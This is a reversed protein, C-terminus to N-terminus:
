VEEPTLSPFGRDPGTDPRLRNGRWVVDDTWYSAVIQAVSLLDRVPLLWQVVPQVPRASISKLCRGLALAVLTRAGWAIAVLAAAWGAGDTSAFVLLSWVIPYQLMAGVMAVPELASMTRAWRLEHRWLGALHTEQVTTVPLTPALRVALGLGRVMRALLYDDALRDALERLGGLQELTRRHLAMTTGLCDQRGLAAGLLSGPLFSYTLHTAGLRAPLGDVAAEAAYPASVLGTGPTQLTEVVRALYDPAVHLDSDAFVLVDHKAQPLMNILNSIKRNAGHETADAAIAIDASPFRAQVRRAVALAADDDALAGIVIQFQPYNQLVFSALAEELLPEAGCVPKLVSVAPQSGLGTRPRRVFCRVCLWGAIAQVIGALTLLALLM